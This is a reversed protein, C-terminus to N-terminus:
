HAESLRHDLAQFVGAERWLTRNGIVYLVEQARTAAVNLLNPRAGAWSRAGNQERRPAGLVFFVAEAERGQVTHVTGVREAAWTRANGLWEKLAEDERIIQRLREAVVVFPSVVYVNPPVGANALRHLLCVLTAGEAASWKDEVIGGEVDFWASPGLTERIRSPKSQKAQVMLGAYAIENSVGFM